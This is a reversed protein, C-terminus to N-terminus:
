SWWCVWIKVHSACKETEGMERCCSGCILVWNSSVKEERLKWSLLRGQKQGEGETLGKETQLAPWEESGVGTSGTQFSGKIWQILRDSMAGSIVQPQFNGFWDRSVTWRQLESNYAWQGRANKVGIWPNLTHAWFSVTSRIYYEQWFIIPIYGSYLWSSVSLGLNISM